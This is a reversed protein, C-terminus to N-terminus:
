GDDFRVRRTVAATSAEPAASGGEDGGIMGIFAAFKSLAQEPVRRSRELRLLLAAAAPKDATKFSMM